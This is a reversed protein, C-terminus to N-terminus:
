IIKYARLIQGIYQLDKVFKKNVRLVRLGLSALYQDKKKAAIKRKHGWKDTSDVELCTDPLVIFDIIYPGIAQQKFHEIGLTNLTRSMEREQPLLNARFTHSRTLAARERTSLNKIPNKSKMRDAHKAFVSNNNKTLGYAWHRTGRNSTLLTAEKISRLKLGAVRAMHALGQRSIGSEKAIQNLSLKQKWHLEEIIEKLPLSFHTELKLRAKM